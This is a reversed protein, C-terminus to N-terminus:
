DTASTAGTASKDPIAPLYRNWVENLDDRRYGKPTSGGIRISRSKVGYEKLHNALGREDM